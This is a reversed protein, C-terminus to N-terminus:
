YEANEDKNVGKWSYKLEVVVTGCMVTYSFLWPVQSIFLVCDMRVFNLIQNDCACMHHHM